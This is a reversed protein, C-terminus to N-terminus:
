LWRKAPAPYQEKVDPVDPIGPMEESPPAVEHCKNCTGNCMPGPLSLNKRMSKPVVIEAFISYEPCILLFASVDERIGVISCEIDDIPPEVAMMRAKDDAGALFANLILALGM